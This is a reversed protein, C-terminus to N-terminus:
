TDMEVTPLRIYIVVVLGLIIYPTPRIELNMSVGFSDCQFAHFLIILYTFPVLSKPIIYEVESSKLSRPYVSLSQPPLM